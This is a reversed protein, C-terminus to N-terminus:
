SSLRADAQLRRVGHSATPASRAPYRPRSRRRAARRQQRSLQLHHRGPQQRAHHRFDLGSRLTFPFKWYFDRRANLFASFNIDVGRRPTEAVSILSYNEIRYPDVPTRTANDIVSIVGPRTDIIQDFAVTV